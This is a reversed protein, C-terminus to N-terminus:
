RTAILGIEIRGRVREVAFVVDGTITSGGALAVVFGASVRGIWGPRVTLSRLSYSRIADARFQRQYEAVVATRGRQEGAGAVRVVGPSLVRALAQGDRAGYARAFRTAAGAVQARTLPGISESGGSLLLAVALIVAAAVTGGAILNRRARRRAWWRSLTGGDPEAAGHVPPEQGLHVRTRAPLATAVTPAGSRTAEDVLRTAAEPDSRRRRLRRRASRPLALRGPRRVPGGRAAAVAAEGLAGASAYRDRPRKALARRLVPDFIRPGAPLGALSPPPDSIHALITAPADPRHFPPSGTLCTYLLCGLSYVDSRADTAEGRLQEPSMFDLTGLRENSDTARTRSDVARIIGFDTLYAHEDSLLVNAPKIDRHVLGRAHAADLAKAVQSVVAAAEAPPLRGSEALRRGLDIGEVFRMVLYLHGDEEGAAYVPIVNPHDIAAMARAEREFRRRVNPDGALDASILKIAVPRGLRLDRGRYVVGMGGRGIVEIVQCGAFETGRPLDTV